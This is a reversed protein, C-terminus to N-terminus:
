LEESGNEIKEAAIIASLKADINKLSNKTPIGRLAAAHEQEPTEPLNLKPLRAISREAQEITDFTAMGPKTEEVIQYQGNKAIVRYFM